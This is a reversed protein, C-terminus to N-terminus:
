TEISHIPEILKYLRGNINLLVDKKILNSINKYNKYLLKEKTEIDIVIWYMPSDEMLGDLIDNHESM